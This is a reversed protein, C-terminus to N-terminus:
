SEKAAAVALLGVAHRTAQANSVFVSAGADALLRACRTLGQPDAEVGTLSVVVPLERAAEGPRTLARARAASVAEALEGAPDPHSGHGLVLDLLLVGCGPDASEAAIRELRLSPDIMPHPRGRTLLDDGFDIVLHGSARLDAGLALEPRLPINSAIDGLREQAVLMAEDALTGGCFLGRLHGGVPRAPDAGPWAPWLPVERGDARLASEVAATLDPRGPGLIAWHVPLGLGGAEAQVAELVQTAPPKSVVIISTTAPDAALAALAQRTSRGQVTASLDRGGVGLCHSMGVGAADLLCMVQQAGTGSAAVLGVSGARVANAFGLAVGGIVATGCDPGMVLLDAAAAADKLALEDEVSVNDSFLMVSLGAELAEHAEAAANPGPVSVLALTASGTRAATRLTRAPGAEGVGGAAAGAAKLAALAGELAALGAELGADGQGRVAVLLDNPGVPEAATFGMGSLLELNLETGMAVLAASVGPAAGVDRSVQMLSVSDYYVGRRIQVSDAM